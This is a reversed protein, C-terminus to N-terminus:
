PGIRISASNSAHGRASVKVTCGGVFLTDPLRFTVQAFGTVPNLRVDEAPVDYSQNSSDILNVVVASSTEGPNLQLNAVFVM